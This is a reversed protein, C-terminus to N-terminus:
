LPSVEDAAEASFGSHKLIESFILSQDERGFCSPTPGFEPDLSLQPRVVGWVIVKEMGETAKVVDVEEKDEDTPKPDAIAALDVLHGRVQALASYSLKRIEVKGLSTEIVKRDARELIESTVFGADNTPTDKGEAM